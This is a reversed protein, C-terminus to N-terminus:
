INLSEDKIKSIVKDILQNLKKVLLNLDNFDFFDSVVEFITDETLSFELENALEEVNKDRLSINEPILAIAIATHIKDKLIYLLTPIDFEDPILTGEFLEIFQKYQGLVLKKQTYNKGEIEYKKINESM